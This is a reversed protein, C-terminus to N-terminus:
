MLLHTLYVFDNQRM